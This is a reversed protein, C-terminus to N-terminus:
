LLIECAVRPHCGDRVLDCARHLDVDERYAIAAASYEDYGHRILEARRWLYIRLVEARKERDRIDTQKAM